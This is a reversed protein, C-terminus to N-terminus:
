VYPGGSIDAKPAVVYIVLSRASRNENEITSKKPHYLRATADQIKIIPYPAINMDFSYSSSFILGFSYNNIKYYKISILKMFSSFIFLSYFSRM